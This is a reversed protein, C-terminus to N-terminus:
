ASLVEHSHVFKTEIQIAIFCGIIDTYIPAARRTHSTSIWCDVLMNGAIIQLYAIKKHHISKYSKHNVNAEDKEVVREENQIM